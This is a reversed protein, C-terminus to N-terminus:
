RSKSPVKSALSQIISYSAEDIMYTFNDIKTVFFNYAVIGGIGAVLGGATNVLAESIGRSLQIADPTGGAKAMADFARIMGIVTGLLGVMTGISAITSMSVLNRELMPVELMTAEEISRQINEMMEKQVKVDGSEVLTKYRELGTRIVNAMSGRQKDCAALAADIDGSNVAQQINKLFNPLQGKGQAKRLSFVREFVFAVLMIILAMLLAVLPGGDQLFKPLAFEYILYGTVAAIVIVILNFTSTKM